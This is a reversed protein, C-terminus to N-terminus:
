AMERLLWRFTGEIDTDEFAFGSGLLRSPVARISALFLADALEGLAGRLAWRPAHTVVPRNLARGLAASWERNTVPDPVSANFAGTLDSRTAVHILARVVDPRSVWGTYQRGNGLWGGMYRFPRVVQPFAGGDPALVVTMRLVAVRVGLAEAAANGAEWATSLEALFGTGTPTTEEVVDDGRDGYIGTSSVGVLVPPRRQLGALAAVLTATSDVRSSWLRARRQRTWPRNALPEGALNFIGDLGELRGAREIGKDPDWRIEEASRPARRSIVLVEDGRARLAPV